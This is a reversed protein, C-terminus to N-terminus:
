AVKSAATNRAPQRMQQMVHKGRYYIMIGVGVITPIAWLTTNFAQSPMLRVAGFALFATYVSIGAGLLAQMHQMIFEGRPPKPSFIFYLYVAASALGVGAVGIMLTQGILWGQFACNLAAIITVVQLSVNLWHRNASHNTKNRITTLGHWALGVTLIALYLMMWGFLGRILAADTLKPHTELPAILSCLGMGTAAIGTWIMSWAFYRGWRKHTDGGKRGLVPVWFVVLGTAGGIIHLAVFVHFLHVM